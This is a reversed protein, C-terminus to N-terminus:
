LWYIISNCHGTGTITVNEAYVDGFQDGRPVSFPAAVLYISSYCSVTTCISLDSIVPM